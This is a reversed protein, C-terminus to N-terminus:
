KVEQTLYKTGKYYPRINKSFYRGTSESSLWNQIMEKPIGFYSYQEKNKFVVDLKETTSDYSFSEIIRSDINEKTIYRQNGFFDTEEQKNTNM